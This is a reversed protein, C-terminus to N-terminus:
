KKKFSFLSKFKDKMLKKADEREKIKINEFNERLNSFNASLKEHEKHLKEHEKNLFKNDKKHQRLKSRLPANSVYGDLRGILYGVVFLVIILVSTSIKLNLNFPKLVFEAFDSNVVALVIVILFVPLEILTRIFNM